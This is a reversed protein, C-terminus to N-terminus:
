AIVGELSWTQAATIRVPLLMGPRANDSAFNVIKGSETRGTFIGPNTRSPGETLVTQVSGVL